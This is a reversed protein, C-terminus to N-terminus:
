PATGPAAASVLPSRSFARAVRALQELEHDEDVTSETVPAAPEPDSPRVGRGLATLAARIRAAEVV